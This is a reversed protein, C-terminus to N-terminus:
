IYILVYPLFPLILLLSTIITFNGKDKKELLFLFSLIELSLVILTPTIKSFCSHTYKNAVVFIYDSSFFM